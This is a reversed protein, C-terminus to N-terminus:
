PSRPPSSAPPGATTPPPTPSSPHRHHHPPLPDPQSDPHAPPRPPWRLQPLPAPSMGSTPPRPTPTPRATPPPLPTPAIPHTNQRHLDATGLRPAPALHLLLGAHRGHTRVPRARPLVRAGSYRRSMEEWNSSSMWPAPR